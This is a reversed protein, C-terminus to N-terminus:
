EAELKIVKRIKKGQSQEFAYELLMNVTANLSQDTDKSLQAVKNYLSVNNIRLAIPKSM